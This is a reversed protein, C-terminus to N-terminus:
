KQVISGISTLTRTNGGLWVSQHRHLDAEGGSHLSEEMSFIPCEQRGVLVKEKLRCLFQQHSSRRQEYDTARFPKSTTTPTKHADSGEQIANISSILLGMLKTLTILSSSRSKIIPLSMKMKKAKMETLFLCTDLTVGM